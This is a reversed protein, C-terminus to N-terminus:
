KLKRGEMKISTHLTLPIERGMMSMQGGIDSIMNGNLLMGTATEVEFKGEQEGKLDATYDYGNMNGPSNDGSVEGRATIVAINDRIESLQYTTIIHVKLQDTRTSSIKWRDGVHVASDPFINLFQEMNKKILGERIRQDFQKEAASRVGPMVKDLLKAKM